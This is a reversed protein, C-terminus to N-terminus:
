VIQPASRSWDRCCGHGADPTQPVPDPLSGVPSTSRAAVGRPALCKGAARQRVGNTTNTLPTLPPSFFFNAGMDYSDKWDPKTGVKKLMEQDNKYVLKTLGAANEKGPGMYGRQHEKAEPRKAQEKTEEPLAFFSRSMSFM